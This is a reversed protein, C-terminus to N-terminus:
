ETIKHYSCQQCVHIHLDEGGGVTGPSETTGTMGLVVSERNVFCVFGVLFESNPKTLTNFLCKVEMNSLCIGTTYKFSFYHAFHSSDRLSQSFLRGIIPM